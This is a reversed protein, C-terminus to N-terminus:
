FFIPPYPHFAFLVDSLLRYFCERARGLKPQGAAEWLSLRLLHAEDSDLLGYQMIPNPMAALRELSDQSPAVLAGHVAPCPVHAGRVTSELNPRSDQCIM